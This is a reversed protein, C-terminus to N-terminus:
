FVRRMKFSVYFRILTVPSGQVRRWRYIEASGHVVSDDPDSFCFSSCISLLCVADHPFSCPIPCM